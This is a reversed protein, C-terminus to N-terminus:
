KVNSEKMVFQYEKAWNISPVIPTSHGLHLVSFVESESNQLFHAVGSGEEFSIGAEGVFVRSVGV